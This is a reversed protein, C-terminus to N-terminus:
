LVKVPRVGGQLSLELPFQNLLQRLLYKQMYTRSYSIVYVFFIDNCIIIYYTYIHVYVM